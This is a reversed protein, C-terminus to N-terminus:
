NVPTRKIKLKKKITSFIKLLEEAESQLDKVQNCTM